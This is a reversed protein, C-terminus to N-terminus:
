VPPGAMAVTFFSVRGAVTGTLSSASRRETEPGCSMLYRIPLPTMAVRLWDTSKSVAASAASWKPNSASLSSAAAPPRAPTSRPAAMRQEVLAVGVRGREDRPRRHDGDEAVDVVALGRQEVGDALRRHGRPLRAADGLLDAGVLDLLVAALDGEDVGRAVLREGGHAGAARVDGVDRDEHHGGVVADHGLGLLRDLVDAAGLHRDDDGEVLDVLVAGVGVADELLEGVAAQHAAVVATVDGDHAGAGLGALPHGVQEVHDEQGGVGLHLGLGVGLRARHAGDDLRVAVGAAPGDGGHQHLVAGQM